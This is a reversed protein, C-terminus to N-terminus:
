RRRLPLLHTKGEREAVMRTAEVDYVQALEVARVLDGGEVARNIGEVFSSHLVNLDDILRPSATTTM